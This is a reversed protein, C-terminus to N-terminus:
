YVTPGGLCFCTRLAEGPVIPRRHWGIELRTCPRIEGTALAWLPMAALRRGAQRGRARLQTLGGYGDQAPAVGGSARSRGTAWSYRVAARQQGLLRGSFCGVVTAVWQFLIRWPTSFSSPTGGGGLRKNSARSTTGIFITTGPSPRFVAFWAKSHSTM